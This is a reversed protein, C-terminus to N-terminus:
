RAKRGVIESGEAVTDEILKNFRFPRQGILGHGTNEFVTYTASPLHKKLDVSCSIDVLYDEDGSVITIKPINHDILKMRAPSVSHGLAAYMQSIAGFPDQERSYKAREIMHDRECERNTRKLSDNERIEALWHIPFVLELYSQILKESDSITFFSMLTYIGRWSPLNWFPGYGRSTVALTLSAIREHIRHCLELSIMGGMSVGVLHLSRSNTWGLLDLLVIVDEAMGSTSYPGRPGTSHGVARNDFALLQYKGTLALNNIQKSWGFCSGNLGMIFVLKEAQPDASGHVEYYLQHSEAPNLKNQTVPCLGRRLRTETTFITPYEDANELELDGHKIPHETM